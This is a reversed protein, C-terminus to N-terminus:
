NGTIMIRPGTAAKTKEALSVVGATMKRTQAVRTLTLSLKKFGISIPRPTSMGMSTIRIPAIPPMISEPMIPRKTPAITNAMMYVNNM